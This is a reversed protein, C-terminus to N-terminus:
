DSIGLLRAPNTKVMQTIEEEAMGSWLMNSIFLRMSEAAPSQLALGSDTSMICNAVGENHISDMIQKPTLGQGIPSIQALTYEIMVGEQVRMKREEPSLISEMIIPFGAHTVLIKNIGRQRAKEAVAITERSSIHGTALVIDHDKIIHLIDIVESAIKGDENLLSLGKGKIGLKVLRNVIKISNASTLTPMWVVKAGLKAATEVAYPNLGGCEYELCIGGFVDIGPVFKSALDALPMTPYCPNKFVLGRLGMEKAMMVEAIANQRRPLLDPKCHVHMDISGRLIRGAQSDDPEKRFELTCGGNDDNESMTGGGLLLSPHWGGDSLYRNSVGM